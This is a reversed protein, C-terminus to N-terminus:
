RRIKASSLNRYITNTAIDRHKAYPMAKRRTLMQCHLGIRPAHVCQSPVNVPCQLLRLRWPQVLATKLITKSKMTIPKGKGWSILILISVWFFNDTMSINQMPNKYTVRVKMTTATSVFWLIVITLMMRKFVSILKWFVVFIVHISEGGWKVM